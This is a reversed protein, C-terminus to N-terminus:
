SAKGRKAQPLFGRLRAERIWTHVTPAKVNWEAAMAAAPHPVYKAWVNFHAAVLKSFEEPDAGNRRLPPLRELEDRMRDDADDMSLNASNELGGVPVKRVQEATIADSLLLLGTLVLRGQRNAGYRAFVAVGPIRSITAAYGSWSQGLRENLWREVERPRM